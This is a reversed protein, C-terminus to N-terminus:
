SPNKLVSAPISNGTLISDIVTGTKEAMIFSELIILPPYRKGYLLTIARNEINQAYSRIAALQDRVDDKENETLRVRPSWIKEWLSPTSNLFIEIGDCDKLINGCIERVKEM